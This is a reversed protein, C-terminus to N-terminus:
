KPDARWLHLETRQEAWDTVGNSVLAQGDPSFRVQYARSRYGHLTLLERGTAVHWLKISGDAAASALTRGDASFDVGYVSTSHAAITVPERWLGTPWISITGNNTGGGALWSGDRSLAASHFEGAPEFVPAQFPAEYVRLINGHTIYPGCQARFRGDASFLQRPREFEPWDTSHDKSPNRPVVHVPDERVPAMRQGSTTDWAEVRQSALEVLLSIGSRYPTCGGGVAGIVGTASFLTAYPMALARQKV